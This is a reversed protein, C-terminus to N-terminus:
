FGFWHLRYCVTTSLIYIIKLSLQISKGTSELVLRGYQGVALPTSCLKMMNQLFKSNIKENHLEILIRITQKFQAEKMQCCSYRFAALERNFQEAVSSNIESRLSPCINLSRLKEAPKRQNKQHFRDYLAYRDNTKTIPHLATFRDTAQGPPQPAGPSRLYTIWELNVELTKEKAEDINTKSPTCLRGDHPQFFKQQTRNNMHRSVQGAVDSIYITPFSSFSLLGDVHDRASETWFLFNVYYVVGHTCAFHM